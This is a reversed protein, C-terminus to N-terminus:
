YNLIGNAINSRDTPKYFLYNSSNKNKSDIITTRGDNDKCEMNNYAECIQKYKLDHKKVTQPNQLHIFKVVNLKSLKYERTEKNDNPLIMFQTEFAKLIFYPYYERNNRDDNNLSDHVSIIKDFIIANTKLENFSFVPPEPGNFKKMLFPIHQNLYSLSPVSEKLIARMHKYLMKKASTGTLKKEALKREIISIEDPKLEKHENALIKEIWYKYHKNSSYGSSPIKEDETQGMQVGREIITGKLLKTQGCLCKIESSESILMKEGCSCYYYNNGDSYNIDIYINKLENILKSIKMTLLKITFGNNIPIPIKRENSSTKENTDISLQPIIMENASDNINIYIIDTSTFSKIEEDVKNVVYVDQNHPISLSKFINKKREPNKYQSNDMISSKVDTSLKIDLTSKMDFTSKTDIISKADLTSKAVTIVSKYGSCVSEDMISMDDNLFKSCYQNNKLENLLKECVNVNDHLISIYRYVAITNNFEDTIDDGIYYRSIIDITNMQYESQLKVIQLYRKYYNISTKFIEEINFQEIMISVSISPNTQSLYNMLYDVNCYKDIYQYDAQCETLKDTLGLLIFIIILTEFQFRFKRNLNEITEPM